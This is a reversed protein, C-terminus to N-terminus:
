ILDYGKEVCYDRGKKTLSWYSDGGYLIEAFRILGLNSLMDIAHETAPYSERIDSCLNRIPRGGPYLRFLTLLIRGAASDFAPEPPREVHPEQQGAAQARLLEARSRQLDEALRKLRAVSRKAARATTVVYSAVILFVVGRPIPVPEALWAWFVSLANAAGSWAVKANTSFDSKSWLSVAAALAGLILGAIVKSGVPDNWWKKLWEPM